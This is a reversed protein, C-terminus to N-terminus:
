PTLRANSYASFAEDAVNDSAFALNPFTVLVLAGRQGGYRRIPFCPTLVRVVLNHCTGASNRMLLNSPM